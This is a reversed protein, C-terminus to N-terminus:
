VIVDMAINRTKQSSGYQEIHGVAQDLGEVVRVALIRDLFEAGPIRQFDVGQQVAGVRGAQVEDAIFLGGAERIMKAARAMFGDPIDPLGENALIPCVLMGALPIGSAKFGDIAARVKALYLETLESSSVGDRLPRYCQPYPISRIEPNKEEGTQKVRNLKAVEASNGHYAADSCIIGRGGTAVRAM